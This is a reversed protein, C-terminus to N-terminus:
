RQYSGGCPGSINNLEFAAFGFNVLANGNSATVGQTATTPPLAIGVAKSPVAFSTIMQCTSANVARVSGGTGGSVAIYLTNDLSMQMFFPLDKNTFSQCVAGTQGQANFHMVNQSGQNSVFIDGDGRRAIGVPGSLGSNIFNSNTSFGAGPSRLVQNNANDVILLDGTNKQAVGQNGGGAADLQTPTPSGASGLELATIGPFMWWGAGPDKSTVVLDGTSTIRGCQPHQLAGNSYVIEPTIPTAAAPDFRVIKNNNSDCAYVLYPHATGPANDPAVVMGEYDAGQTSILLTAIGTSTKISYIKGATGTSVFVQSAGQACLPLSCVLAFFPMLWLFRSM